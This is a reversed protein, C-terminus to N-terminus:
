EKHNYIWLDSQHTIDIVQRETLQNKLRGMKRQGYKLRDWWGLRSSYIRGWFYAKEVDQMPGDAAYASSLVKQAQDYGQNAPPTLWHIAARYNDNLSAMTGITTRAEPDGEEARELLDQMFQPGM